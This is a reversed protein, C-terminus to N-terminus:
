APTGIEKDHSVQRREWWIYWCTVMALEVANEGQLSVGGPLNSCIIEDLILSGSRHQEAIAAVNAGLGLEEWVERAGCCIFLMHKLDEPDVKCVLCTMPTKIHINVLNCYCPVIGHLARWIFIHVKPPYEFGLTIEM